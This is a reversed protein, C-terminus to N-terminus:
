ADRRSALLNDKGRSGSSSGYFYEKVGMAMSGLVGLMINLIDKQDAPIDFFFLAALVGFFGVLILVALWNPMTDKTEIQRRRASVRDDAAIKELDVDLAKLDTKFKADIEKLKTLEEPSAVSIAKEIEKEDADDKRLLAQSIAKIASGALPGGLATGITPAIKKVISKWNM